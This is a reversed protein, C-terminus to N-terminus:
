RFLSLDIADGMAKYGAAGPHLGDESAFNARMNVPRAPDRALHDFDIVADPERSTRIWQNVAQRMRENARSYHTLSGGFPMVTAFIVRVGRAHARAIIQRYGAILDESTVIPSDGFVTHGSM